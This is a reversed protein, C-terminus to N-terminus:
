RPPPYRMGSNHGAGVDKITDGRMNQKKKPFTQHHETKEKPANRRQQISGEFRTRTNRRRKEVMKATFCVSQNPIHVSLSQLEVSLPRVRLESKRLYGSLFPGSVYNVTLEGSDVNGEDIPNSGNVTMISSGKFSGKPLLMLTQTERRRFSHTSIPFAFSRLATTMNGPITLVPTSSARRHASPLAQRVAYTPLPKLVSDTVVGIFSGM